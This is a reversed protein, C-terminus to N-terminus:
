EIGVFSVMLKYKFQDLEFLFYFSLRSTHENPYAVEKLSFIPDLFLQMYEQLKFYNDKHFLIQQHHIRVMQM